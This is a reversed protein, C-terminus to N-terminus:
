FDKFTVHFVKSLVFARPVLQGGCKQLNDLIDLEDMNICKERDALLSIREKCHRKCICLAILASFM